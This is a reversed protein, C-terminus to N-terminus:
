AQGTHPLLKRTRAADVLRELRRAEATVVRRGFGTLRYYRRREDDLERAPRRDSEEILGSDILQAICRYLTGPGIDPHQERSALDKKIGYAHREGDVLALLMLFHLPKLPLLDDPKAM